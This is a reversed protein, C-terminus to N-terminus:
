RVSARIRVVREPRSPRPAASERATSALADAAELGEVVRGLPAFGGGLRTAAVDDPALAVFWQSSGSDRHAGRALCVTGRTPPTEAPEGPLYWGATGTGDGRPDGTQLLVGPVARHFPLDTYFGDRALAWVHAVTAYDPAPDLEVTFPERSTEVRLTLRRVNGPTTVDVAFDPATLAPGDGRALVAVVHLAGPAVAAFRVDRTLRGGAPVVVGRTPTAALRLAGADPVFEGYLRTVVSPRAGDAAVRLSLADAALRPDPVTVPERTGNEVTVRVVVDDGLRVSGEVAEARLLVTGESGDAWARAALTLAPGAVLAGLLAGLVFRRM